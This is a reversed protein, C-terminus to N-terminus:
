IDLTNAELTISRSKSGQDILGSFIFLTNTTEDSLM